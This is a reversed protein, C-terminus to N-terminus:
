ANVTAPVVVLAAATIVPIARDLASRSRCRGVGDRGPRRTGALANVRASRSCTRRSSSATRGIWVPYGGDGWGTGFCISNGGSWTAGLEIPRDPAALLFSDPDTSSLASMTRLAAADFLAMTSADIGVNYAEGPKLAALDQGPRLAMKWSRVPKKVITLRAAAVRKQDPWNAVALTLPYSGAPVKVTYPEIGLQEARYLWNPDVAILRGTPMRLTGGPQTTVTVWDGNDMQHRSGDEFLGDTQEPTPFGGADTDPNRPAAAPRECGVLSATGVTLALGIANRRSWAV